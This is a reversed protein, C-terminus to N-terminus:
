YITDCCSVNIHTSTQKSQTQGCIKPWRHPAIAHLKETYIKHECTTVLTIVIICENHEHHFHKLHDEFIDQKINQLDMYKDLVKRRKRSM